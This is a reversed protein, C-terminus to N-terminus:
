FSDILKVVRSGISGWFGRREYELERELKQIEESVADSQYQVMMRESELQAMELQHKREEASIKQMEDKERQQNIKNEYEASLALAEKYEPADTPIM